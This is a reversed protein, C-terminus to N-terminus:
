KQRHILVAQELVKITQKATNDWNFQCSMELARKSLSDRLGDDTLLACLGNLISFTDHPDILVGTHEAIEKMSSVNSTLVPLGKVMADVLPLGFGEYLAPMALFMAHEYLAALEDDSVYGLIHLNDSLGLRKAVSEVDIPGWGKGGAIVFSFKDRLDQPLYSYAELLRKLNKRPELTGVFLFFPKAIGLSALFDGDKYSDAMSSALYTVQIKKTVEKFEDSLDNATHKSVAIVQDAQRIAKPMFVRDIWRNLVRMTQPAHRWVLDHITVVMAVQRSALLPLRHTPSWFVDLEDQRVYFPLFTQSWLIRPVKVPIDPGIRLQVNSKKSYRSAIDTNSYLFWEHPTDTLRNLLEITYRGIGTLNKSGLSSTDVGIRM